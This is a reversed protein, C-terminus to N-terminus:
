SYVLVTHTHEGLSAYPEQRCYKLELDLFDDIIEIHDPLKAFFKYFIRVGAKSAVKLGAKRCFNEVESFSVPNIPTLPRQKTAKGSMANQIQGNIGWKLILKDKNFFLVSMKGSRSMLPLLCEIASLPKEMWAIVGHLLILDYQNGRLIEPLDQIPANIIKISEELGEAENAIRANELMEASLDAMTISHGLKALWRAIQGMGAGADLITLRNGTSLEPINALMDQKVVELRIKGKGTQYIKDSFRPQLEDFGVDGSVSKRSRM